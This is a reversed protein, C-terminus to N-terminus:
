LWRRARRDDWRDAYEKEGESHWRAQRMQIRKGELRVALSLFRESWKHRGEEAAKIAKRLAQCEAIEFRECRARWYLPNNNNRSEFRGRAYRGRGCTAM